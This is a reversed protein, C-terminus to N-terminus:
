YLVVSQTQEGAIISKVSPIECDQGTIIPFPLDPSGYGVAKLSALIGISLGDYPSLVADVKSGDSYHASLIDDMRAQAVQGDWNHIAVQDLETQGSKVVLQGSDIYPQLEAMGGEFYLPANNDDLSGAFLEINFPGKGEKLGLKEVIYGGQLKGIQISDFTIYYDVDETNMILRDYAIVYAGQEKAKRCVDTMTSGDIPAIVLADVGQMIM